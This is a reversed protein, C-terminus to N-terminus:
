ESLNGKKVTIGAPNKQYECGGICKKRPGPGRGIIRGRELPGTRDSEPMHIVRKFTYYNRM